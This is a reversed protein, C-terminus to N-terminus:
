RFWPYAYLFKGQRAIIRSIEDTGKMARILRIPGPSPHHQTFAWDGDFIQPTFRKPDTKFRVWLLCSADNNDIEVPVLPKGGEFEAILVDLDTSEM